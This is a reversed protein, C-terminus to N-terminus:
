GNQQQKALLEAKKRQKSANTRCRKSCYIQHLRTNPTFMVGCWPCKVMSKAEPPKRYGMAYNTCQKCCFRQIATRKIFEKGCYECTVPTNKLANPKHAAEQCEKSCYRYGNTVLKGCMPCHAETERNAIAPGKRDANDAAKAAVITSCELCYKANRKSEIQKGCMVCFRVPVIPPKKPKDLLKTVRASRYYSVQKYWTSSFNEPFFRQMESDWFRDKDLARGLPRVEEPTMGLNRGLALAICPMTYYGKMLNSWDSYDIRSKIFAEQETMGHKDIWDQLASM